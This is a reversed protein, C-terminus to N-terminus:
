VNPESADAGKHKKKVLKYCVYKLIKCVMRLARYSYLVFIFVCVQGKRWEGTMINFIQVDAVDYQGEVSYTNGGLFIVLVSAM